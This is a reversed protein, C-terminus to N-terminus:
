VTKPEKKPDIVEKAVENTKNTDDKKEGCLGNKIWIITAGVLAAPILVLSSIAMFIVKFFEKVKQGTKKDEKEEISFNKSICDCTNRSIGGVWADNYWQTWTRTKNDAATTATSSAEKTAAPASATIVADVQTPKAPAAAAAASM